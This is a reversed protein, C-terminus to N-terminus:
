TRIMKESCSGIKICMFIIVTLVLFLFRCSFLISWLCLKSTEGFWFLFVTFAGYRRTQLYIIMLDDCDIIVRYYFFRVPKFMFWCCGHSSNEMLFLGVCEERFLRHFNTTPMSYSADVFGVHFQHHDYNLSKNATSHLLLACSVLPM